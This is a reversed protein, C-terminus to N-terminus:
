SGDGRRRPEEQRKFLLAGALAGLVPVLWGVLLTGYVLVVIFLKFFDGRGGSDLGGLFLCLAFLYTAYGAAAVALGRLAARGAGRTAAPDLISAGLVAGWGGAIVAPGALIVLFMLLFSSVSGPAEAAYAAALVVSCPIAAARTFWDAAYVRREEPSM